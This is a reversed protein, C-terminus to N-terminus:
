GQLLTPEPNKRLLEGDEMYEIWVESLDIGLRKVEAAFTIKAEYIAKMTKDFSNERDWLNRHPQELEIGLICVGKDVYTFTLASEKEELFEVVPEIEYSWLPKGDDGTWDGPMGLLKIAMGMRMQLGYYLM